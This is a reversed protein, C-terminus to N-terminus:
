RTRERRQAQYVYKERPPDAVLGLVFTIMAEREDANFPFQPM